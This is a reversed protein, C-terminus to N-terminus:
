RRNPRAEKQKQRERLEREIDASRAKALHRSTGLDPQYMHGETDEVQKPDQPEDDKARPSLPMTTEKEQITARLKDAGM